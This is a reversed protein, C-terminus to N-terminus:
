YNNKRKPHEKEPIKVEMKIDSISNTHAPIDRVTYSERLDYYEEEVIARLLFLYNLADGIKENWVPIPALEEQRCLDFVSVIHKAMMGGLADRETTSQLKAAVKFNHLRDSTAYEDAKVSLTSRCRIMQEDFVQEFHEPTM